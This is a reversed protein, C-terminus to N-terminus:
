DIGSVACKTIPGNGILIPTCTCLMKAQNEIVAIDLLAIHAQKSRVLLPAINDTDGLILTFHARGLLFALGFPIM